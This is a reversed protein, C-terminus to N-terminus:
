GGVLQLLPVVIALVVIAVILWSIAVGLVAIARERWTLPLYKELKYDINVLRDEPEDDWQVLTPRYVSNRKSM